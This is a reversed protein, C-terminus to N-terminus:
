RSRGRASCIPRRKSINATTVVEASVEEISVIKARNQEILVTATAHYIPTTHWAALAALASVVLAIALIAWKRKMISRWYVVLESIEAEQREAAPMPYHKRLAIESSM